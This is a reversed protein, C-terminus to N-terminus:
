VRIFDIHSIKPKYPHRQIAQVKVTEEEGDINLSMPKGYFDNQTQMRIITDHSIDISICPQKKGYVIAPVRNMARLRRNAGKSTYQRKTSDIIIM